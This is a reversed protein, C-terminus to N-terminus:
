QPEPLLVTVTVARHSNRASLASPSNYEHRAPEIIVSLGSITSNFALSQRHVPRLILSVKKQPPTDPDAYQTHDYAGEQM